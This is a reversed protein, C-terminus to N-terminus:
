VVDRRVPERADRYGVLVPLEERVERRKGEVREALERSLWELEDVALRMALSTVLLGMATISGRQPDEGTTGEQDTM